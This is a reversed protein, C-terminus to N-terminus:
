AAHLRDSFWHVKQEQFRVMARQFAELKNCDRMCLERDEDLKPCGRCPSEVTKIIMRENYNM